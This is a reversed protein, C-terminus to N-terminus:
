IVSSQFAVAKGIITIQNLEDNLYVLPAYKPNEPSLIISESYKEKILQNFNEDHVDSIILVKEANM